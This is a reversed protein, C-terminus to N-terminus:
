EQSVVSHSKGRDCGITITERFSHGPDGPCSKLLDNTTIRMIESSKQHCTGRDARSSLAKGGKEHASHTGWTSADERM